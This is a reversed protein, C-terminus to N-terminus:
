RSKNAADTADQAALERQLEELEEQEESEKVMVMEEESMQGTFVRYLDHILITGVSISFLVGVGYILGMSLGASPSRVDLNIMTQEWSGVLFLWTVWLMLLESIILCFKKGTASLRGVLMDVGLHGREHFGIIAGLFTLWVFLFRSLEESITLGMNFAYRLVVNGFVMIVMGALCAVIAIKLVHFYGDVIRQMTDERGVAHEPSIAASRGIAGKKGDV